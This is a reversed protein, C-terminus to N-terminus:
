GAYRVEKDQVIGAAVLARRALAAKQKALCVRCIGHSLTHTRRLPELEPQHTYITAQPHCVACVTLINAEVQYTAGNHM